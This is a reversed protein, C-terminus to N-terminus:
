LAIYFITFEVTTIPPQYPVLENGRFVSLYSFRFLKGAYVTNWRSWITSSSFAEM